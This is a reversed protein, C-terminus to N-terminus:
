SVTIFTLGELLPFTLRKFQQNFPIKLILTWVEVFTDVICLCLGAIKAPSKKM